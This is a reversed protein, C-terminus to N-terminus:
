VEVIVDLGDRKIKMYIDYGKRKMREEQDTKNFKLIKGLTSM